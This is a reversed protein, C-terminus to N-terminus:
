WELEMWMRPCPTERMYFRIDGANTPPPERGRTGSQLGGKFLSWPLEILQEERGQESQKELSGPPEKTVSRWAQAHAHHDETVRSPTTRQEMCNEQITVM